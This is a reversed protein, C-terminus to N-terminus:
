LYGREKALQRLTLQSETLKDEDTPPKSVGAGGDAKPPTPKAPATLLSEANDLWAGLKVPDDYDPVLARQAEPIRALRAENTAQLAQQYKTATEQFTSMEALKAQAQEYLERYQQQEEMQAQKAKEANAQLEALRAEAEKARQNVEDFRSKPIMHQESNQAAAPTTSEMQADNPTNQQESM